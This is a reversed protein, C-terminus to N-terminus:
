AVGLSELARRASTRVAREIREAAHQAVRGSRREEHMADANFLADAGQRLFGALLEGDEPSAMVFHTRGTGKSRSYERLPLLLRGLRENMLEVPLPAFLGLVALAGQTVECLVGRSAGAICVKQSAPVNGALQFLLYAFHHLGEDAAREAQEELGFKGGFGCPICVDCGYANLLRAPRERCAYCHHSNGLEAWCHNCTERGAPFLAAPRQRRCRECTTTMM